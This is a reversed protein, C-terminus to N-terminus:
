RSGIAPAPPTMSSSLDGELAKCQELAILLALESYLAALKEQERLVAYGANYYAAQAILYSEFQNARLGLAELKRRLNTNAVERLLDDFTLYSNSSLAGIDALLRDFFPRINRDTLDRGGNGDDFTPLTIGDLATVSLGLLAQKYIQFLKERETALNVLARDRTAILENLNAQSRAIQDLLEQRRQAISPSDAAACSGDVAVSAAGAAAVSLTDDANSQAPVLIVAAFLLFPAFRM